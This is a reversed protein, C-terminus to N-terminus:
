FPDSKATVKEEKNRLQTPDTALNVITCPRLKKVNVQEIEHRM